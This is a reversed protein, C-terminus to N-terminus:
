GPPQPEQFAPGRFNVWFRAFIGPQAWPPRRPPFCPQLNGEQPPLSPAHAGQMGQETSGLQSNGPAQRQERVRSGRNGLWTFLSGAGPEAHPLSPLPHQQRPLDGAPHLEGPARQWRVPLSVGGLGPCTVGYRTGKGPTDTPGRELTLPLNGGVAKWDRLPLM